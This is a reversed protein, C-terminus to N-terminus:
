VGSSIGWLGVRTKVGSRAIRDFGAREDDEISTVCRGYRLTRQGGEVEADDGGVEGDGETPPGPM